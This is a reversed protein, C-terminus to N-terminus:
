PLEGGMSQRHSAAVDHIHGRAATLLDSDLVLDHVRLAHHGLQELVEEETHGSAVWDCDMGLERCHLDKM